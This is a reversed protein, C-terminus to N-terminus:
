FGTYELTSNETGNVSILVSFEFPHWKKLPCTDLLLEAIASLSHSAHELVTPPTPSYQSTSTATPKM